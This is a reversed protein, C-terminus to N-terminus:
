LAPKWEREYRERILEFVATDRETVDPGPESRRVGLLRYRRFAEPAELFPLHGTEPITTPEANPLARALAELAEAQDLDDRAQRDELVWALEAAMREMTIPGPELAEPRGTGRLDTCLLSVDPPLASPLHHRLHGSGVDPGSHIALVAMSSGRRTWAAIRAGDAEIFDPGTLEPIRM